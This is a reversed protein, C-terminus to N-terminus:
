IDKRIKKRQSREVSIGSPDFIQTRFWCIPPYIFWQSTKNENNRAAMNKGDEIKTDVLEKKRRKEDETKIGREDRNGVKNMTERACSLCWAARKEKPKRAKAKPYNMNKKDDIEDAHNMTTSKEYNLPVDKELNEHDNPDLWDAPIADNCLYWTEVDDNDANNDFKSDKPGNSHMENKSNKRTRSGNEHCYEVDLTEASNGLGVPKQERPTNKKIIIGHQYRYDLSRATDTANNTERLDNRKKPAWKESIPKHFEAILDKKHQLKVPHIKSTHELGQLGKTESGITSAIDAKYVKQLNATRQ